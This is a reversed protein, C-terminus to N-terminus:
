HNIIPFPTFRIKSSLYSAKFFLHKIYLVKQLRWPGQTQFYPTAGLGSIEMSELGELRFDKPLISLSEGGKTVMFEM